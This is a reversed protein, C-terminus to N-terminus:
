VILRDSADELFRCNECCMSRCLGSGRTTYIRCVPSVGLWVWFHAGRMSLLSFLQGLLQQLMGEGVRGLLFPVGQSVLWLVAKVAKPLVSLFSLSTQLWQFQFVDQFFLANGEGVELKGGFHFSGLAALFLSWCAELRQTIPQQEAIVDTM